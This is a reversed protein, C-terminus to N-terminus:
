HHQISQVHIFLKLLINYISIFFILVRNKLNKHDFQQETDTDTSAEDLIDKQIGGRVLVM